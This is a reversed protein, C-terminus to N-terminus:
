TREGFGVSSKEPNSSPNELRNKPPHTSVRAPNYHVQLSDVFQEGWVEEGGSALDEMLHDPPRGAKCFQTLFSAVIKKPEQVFQRGVLVQWNLQKVLVTFVSM